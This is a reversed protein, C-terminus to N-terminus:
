LDEFRGAHSGARLAHMSGISAAEDSGRKRSGARDGGRQLAAASTSTMATPLAAPASASRTRRLSPRPRQAVICRYRVPRARLRQRRVGFPVVGPMGNGVRAADRRGARASAPQPARAAAAIQQDHQQGAAGRRQHRQGGLPTVSSSLCSVTRRSSFPPAVISSSLVTRFCRDAILPPLSAAAVAAGTTVSTMESTTPSSRTRSQIRVSSAPDSCTRAVASCTSSARPPRARTDARRDHRREFASCAALNRLRRLRVVRPMFRDIARMMPPRIVATSPAASAARIAHSRMNVHMSAALRRRLARPPAPKRASSARRAARTQRRGRADDARPFSPERSPRRCRRVCDPTRAPSPAAGRPGSLTRAAPRCLWRGRPMANPLM